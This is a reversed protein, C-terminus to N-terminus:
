LHCVSLAAILVILVIVGVIIIAIRTSAVPCDDKFGTMVYFSYYMMHYLTVM